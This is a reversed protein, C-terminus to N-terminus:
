QKKLELNGYGTSTWEITQDDIRNFSYNVSTGMEYDIRLSYEDNSTEESVEVESMQSLHNIQEKHSIQSTGMNLILDNSTFILSGISSGGAGESKWTGHTWEPPNISTSATVSNDDKSCSIFTFILSLFLLSRKM